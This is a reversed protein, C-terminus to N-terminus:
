SGRFDYLLKAITDSNLIGNLCTKQVMMARAYGKSM